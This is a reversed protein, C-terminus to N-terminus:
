VSGEEKLMQLFPNGIVETLPKVTTKGANEVEMLQQYTKIGNAVKNQMVGRFYSAVNNKGLSVGLAYEILGTDAGAKLFQQIDAILASSLLKGTSKSYFDSVAKLDNEDTVDADGHIDIIVSTPTNIPVTSNPVTSYNYIKNVNNKENDANIQRKDANYNNCDVNFISSGIFKMGAEVPNRGGKKSNCARCAVVINQLSNDGNPNVHDYTGGLEGKRDKWNVTRGCYQCTDGDRAKVAKILRADSYLDYQRKKYEKETERREILRGTYENWDHITIDENLFGATILAEVVKKQDKGKYGMIDSLITIDFKSLDGDPAYDVAWWWLLLLMGIVQAKPIKLLLSLKLTKPHNALEQHAEIWAM